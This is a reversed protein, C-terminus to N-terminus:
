VPWMFNLSFYKPLCILVHQHQLKFQPTEIPAACSNAGQSLIELSKSSFIAEAKVPSIKVKKRQEVSSLFQSYKAIM